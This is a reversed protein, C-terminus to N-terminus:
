KSMNYISNFREYFDSGSTVENPALSNGNSPGNQDIFEQQNPKIFCRKYCIYGIVLILIIEIPTSILYPTWDIASQGSQTPKLM